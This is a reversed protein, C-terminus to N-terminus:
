AGQAITDAFDGPLQAKFHVTYDGGQNGGAGLQLVSGHPGPGEDQVDLPFADSWLARVAQVVSEGPLASRAPVSGSSAIVGARARISLAQSNTRSSSCSGQPSLHPKPLSYLPVASPNCSDGPPQFSCTNLLNESAHIAGRNSQCLYAIRVALTFPGHMADPEQGECGPRSIGHWFVDEM